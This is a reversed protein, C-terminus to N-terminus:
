KKKAKAKKAGYKSRGQGRDQVGATDGKYFKWDFNFNQTERGPKQASLSLQVSCILFFYVSFRLLSKM